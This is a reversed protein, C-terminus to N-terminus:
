RLIVLSWRAGARVISRCSTSTENFAASARATNITKVRWAEDLRATEVDHFDLWERTLSFQAKYFAEKLTFIAEAAEVAEGDGAQQLRRLEAPTCIMAFLSPEISGTKEVDVGIAGFAQDCAAAIAFRQSHAISGRIGSPWDPEGTPARLLPRGGLGLHSLVDSACARGTLFESRRQASWNRALMMETHTVRPEEYMGLERVSMAIHDPFPNLAAQVGSALPDSYRM